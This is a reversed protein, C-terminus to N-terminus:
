ADVNRGGDVRGRDAVLVVVATVVMLLTAVAMAQGRNVAGPQGLLRALTLPLTPLDPRALVLTAGFEGMSVAFAFGAAVAMPRALMPADVELVVRLPSAGLVAAADRVRHDIARAAPLMIRVVFPLAVLAQALPIMVVSGRLDLPPTSFALLLGLGVTVASAGLPLMLVADFSATVRTRGRRREIAVVGAVALGGVVLAVGTAVSAVVMSNVLAQLPSAFLVGRQEGLSTWYQLGVGSGTRVSRWVVSVLPLGLLVGMSTLVAVMGLRQGWGSVPRAESRSSDGTLSWRQSWRGAVVLLVGVLALQGLALTAATGLDLLRLREYVEVEITRLRSGGLLLVVGFSTFCFLYVVSAAALVSPALMPLTVERLVQLRNAGLVAAAEAPGRGLGAWAVGVVRVVVAYNFFAHAVLVTWVTGPPAGLGTFATAVVVTPLVFPVVMAAWLVNRGRFSVRAFLWAAPLGVALTLVTSAAAQWVTFWVVPVLSADIDVGGGPRLAREAVAALPLVLLAGIFLVPLVLLLPGLPARRVRARGRAM